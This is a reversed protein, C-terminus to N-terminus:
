TGRKPAERLLDPVPEPELVDPLRDRIREVVSHMEERLEDPDLDREEPMARNSSTVHIDRERM